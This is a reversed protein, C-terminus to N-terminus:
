NDPNFEARRQAAEEASKLAARVNDVTQKAQSQTRVHAQGQTQTQQQTPAAAQKYLPLMFKLLILIIVLALLLEFLAFGKLTLNTKRNIFPHIYKKM